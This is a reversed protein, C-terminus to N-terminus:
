GDKEAAKEKKKGAAKQKLSSPAPLRDITQEIILKKIYVDFSLM